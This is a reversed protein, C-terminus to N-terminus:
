LFLVGFEAPELKGQGQGAVLVKTCHLAGIIQGREEGHYPVVIFGADATCSPYQISDDKVGTLYHNAPARIQAWVLRTEAAQHNVIRPFCENGDM